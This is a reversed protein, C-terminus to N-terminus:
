PQNLSRTRPVPCRLHEREIKFLGHGHMLSILHPLSVFLLTYDNLTIQRTAMRQSSPWLFPRFMNPAYKTYSIVNSVRLRKYSNTAKTVTDSACVRIIYSHVQFVPATTIPKPLGILLSFCSEGSVKDVVFEM